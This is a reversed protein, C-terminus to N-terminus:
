ARRYRILPLLEIKEEGRAGLGSFREGGSGRFVRRQKLLEHLPLFLLLRCGRAIGSRGPAVFVPMPTMARRLRLACRCCRPRLLKVSGNALGGTCTPLVPM